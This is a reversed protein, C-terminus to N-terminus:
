CKGCATADIKTSIRASFPSYRGISPLEMHDAPFQLSITLYNKQLFRESPALFHHLHFSLLLSVFGQTTPGFGLSMSLAAARELHEMDGGPILAFIQSLEKPLFHM